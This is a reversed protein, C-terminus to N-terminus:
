ETYENMGEADTFHINYAFEESITGDEYEVLAFTNTVVGGHDGHFAPGVVRSREVWRHFWAPRGKAECPRMGTRPNDSKKKMPSSLPGLTPSKANVIKENNGRKEACWEALDATEFCDGEKLGRAETYEQMQPSLANCGIQIHLSKMSKKCKPCIGRHDAETEVCEYSEAFIEPKCPYFEGAFGEIIFDGETAIHQGELTPIICTCRGDIHKEIKLAYATGNTFARVEEWNHRTFQVAEIELQKKRYKM